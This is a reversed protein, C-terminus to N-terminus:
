SCIMRPGITPHPNPRCNPPRPPQIHPPRPLAAPMPRGSALPGTGTAGPRGPSTPFTSTTIPSFVPPPTGVAGPTPLRTGGAIPPATLTSTSRMVPSPSGPTRAQGSPQGTAPLQPLGTQPPAFITPVVSTLTTPVPSNPAVFAVQGKPLAEAVNGNQLTGSGAQLRTYSGPAAGQTNPKVIASEADAGKLQLTTQGTQLAVPTARIQGALDGGVVRVAGQVLSLVKQSQPSGPPPTQFKVEAGPRMGVLGGDPLKVQSIANPPTLLREGPQIVDGKKADRAQGAENVIRVGPPAFLLTGAPEAVAVTTLLVLSAGALVSHFKRSNM